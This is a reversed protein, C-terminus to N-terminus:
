TSKLVCLAGTFCIQASADSYRAVKMASRSTLTTTMACVAIVSSRLAVKAPACHTISAYVTASAEVINDQPASASRHPRLRTNRIPRATNM